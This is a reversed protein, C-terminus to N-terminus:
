RKSKDDSSSEELDEDSDLYEEERDSSVGSTSDAVDGSSSRDYEEERDSSVGSTSDAVDGSSSRDDEDM